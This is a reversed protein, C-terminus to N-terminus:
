VEDGCQYVNGDSGVYWDCPGLSKALDSLEEGIKGYGRDWFGAGHGNRTLWLDHGHRADNGSAADLLARVEQMALFALCDRKAAAITSPHIDHLGLHDCSESTEHVIYLASTTCAECHHPMTPPIRGHDYDCRRCIFRTDTLTWMAAEIYGREFPSLTALTERALSTDLHYESM